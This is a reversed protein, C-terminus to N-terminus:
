VVAPPAGWDLEAWAALREHRTMDVRLPTITIYGEQLGITDSDDGGFGTRYDEAVKYIRQGANEDLLVYEDELEATSMRAVRVGKPWGPKDLNPLNVNVLDGPQLGDALLRALVWRCYVAARDFDIPGGSMRASFAVAPMGLIAAEAAAAVTGSYFVCIGDNAGSNIGSLALDFPEDFLTKVALRVCDAPRGDVSRAEIPRERGDVVVKLECPRVTLPHHVTIGHGAGSQVTDPAVVVVEGLDAAAAALASLGPADIGDDNSVLIRM